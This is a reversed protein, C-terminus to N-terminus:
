GARLAYRAVIGATRTHVAVTDNIDHGYGGAITVAVPVGISRCLELVMEDRRALGDATLRLRGLRDGEHPDAGALYVVLDARSEALIGPLADGLRTLYEDDGAGDELEIEFSAPVKAFPYNRRGHMDFTVIRVDTACLANTGNGQHVDLDVVLARDIRGDRQLRRIAVVVDNFVCFGEGHDAFAHHTGGALNMAVGHVLAAATAEVTGGVARYAREVLQPSWPFGIRRMDGADLTGTSFRDIYGPTHALLLDERAARPPDHMRAGPVIGDAIVRERLLAYKEIPFRHTDPLPITYASSSWCHLSM